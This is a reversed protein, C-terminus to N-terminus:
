DCAFESESSISDVITKYTLDTDEPLEAIEKLKSFDKMDFALNLSDEGLESKIEDASVDLMGAIMDKYMDETGELLEAIQEDTLDAASAGASERIASFPMDFNFKIGDIEADESPATITIAMTMGEIDATCTKSVTKSVNSESCGAFLAAGVLLTAIGKLHKM